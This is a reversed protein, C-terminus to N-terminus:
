ADHTIGNAKAFRIAAERAAQEAQEFGPLLNQIRDIGLELAALTRAHHALPNENATVTGYVWGDLLPDAHAVAHWEKTYLDGGIISDFKAAAVERRDRLIGLQEGANQVRAAAAQGVALVACWEAQIREVAAVKELADARSKLQGADLKALDAKAKTLAAPDSPDRHWFPIKM